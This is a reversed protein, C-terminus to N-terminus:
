GHPNQDPGYLLDNAAGTGAFTGRDELVRQDSIRPVVRHRGRTYNLTVPNYGSASHTVSIGEYGWVANWIGNGDTTAIDSFSGGTPVASAGWIPYHNSANRIVGGILAGM